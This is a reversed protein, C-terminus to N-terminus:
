FSALLWSLDTFFMGSRTRTLVYFPSIFLFYNAYQFFVSMDTLNLFLKNQQLIAWETLICYLLLFIVTREFKSENETKFFIELAIIQKKPKLMFVFVLCRVQKGHKKRRGRYEKGSNGPQLYLVIEGIHSRGDLLSIISSYLQLM